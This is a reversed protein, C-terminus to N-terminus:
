SNVVQLYESYKCTVIEAKPVQLQQTATSLDIPMPRYYLQSAQTPRSPPKRYGGFSQFGGGGQKELRRKYICNDITIAAEIIKELDDPRESRSM